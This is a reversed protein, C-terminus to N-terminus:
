SGVPEYLRVQYVRQKPLSARFAAVDDWAALGVLEEPLNQNAAVLYGAFGPIAGLEAFTQLYADALRDGRGPEAIRISVSLHSVTSLGRALAGEAHIVTLGLVDAPSAGHGQREVLSRRAAVARLGQGATEPSAYSFLIMRALPDQASQWVGAGQFGEVGALAEEVARAYASAAAVDEPHLRVRVM